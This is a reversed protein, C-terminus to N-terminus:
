NPVPPCPDVGTVASRLGRLRPKVEEQGRKPGKLSRAAYQGAHQDNVEDLRMKAMDSALLSAACNQYYQYYMKSGRPLLEGDDWGSPRRM